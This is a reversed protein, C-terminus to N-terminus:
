IKSTLKLLKRRSSSGAIIQVRWKKLSEREFYEILEQNAKGKEPPKAVAIIYIKQMTGDINEERIEELGTKVKHPRVKVSIFIEGNKQISNALELLWSEM